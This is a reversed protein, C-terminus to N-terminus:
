VRVSHLLGHEEGPFRVIQHMGFESPYFRHVSAKAAADQIMRQRHLLSGGLCSLVVQVGDLLAAVYNEDIETAALDIQHVVINRRDGYYKLDNRPSIFALVHFSRQKCQMLAHLIANGFQGNAGFLAIKELSM